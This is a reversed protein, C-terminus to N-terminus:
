ISRTLKKKPTNRRLSCIQLLRTNLNPKRFERGSFLRDGAAILQSYNDEKQELKDSLYEIEELRQKPYSENPKQKLADQYKVKADDYDQADFHGDGQVILANYSDQVAL